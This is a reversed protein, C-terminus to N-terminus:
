SRLMEKYGIMCAFLVIRKKDLDKDRMVVAVDEKRVNGAPWM